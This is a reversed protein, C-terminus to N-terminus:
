SDALRDALKVVTARIRLALGPLEEAPLIGSLAREFDGDSLSAVAARLAAALEARSMTRRGRLAPLRSELRSLRANLVEDDPVAGVRESLFFCDYLDRLLRRENWAALKHSLAASPNMIRVVRAPHGLSQAFAGTSMPISPVDDAVNAEILVAAADVRVEARLMKSHMRIDVDAGDIEDLVRRVRDTIEKKSRFPVFVYDIDVTQRPCDMLRLAMGGKLVAHEEFEEAFRHMIWLFLGERTAPRDLTATM